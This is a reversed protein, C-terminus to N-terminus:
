PKGKLDKQHIFIRSSFFPICVVGWGVCFAPPLYGEMIHMANAVPAVSFICAFAIAIKLLKKETKSM